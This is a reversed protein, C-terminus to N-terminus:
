GEGKQRRTVDRQGHQRVDERRAEITEARVGRAFETARRREMKMGEGFPGAFGDVLLRKYAQVAESHGALIERALEDSAELLREAPVVRNVLGWECAETATVFRGTYALESARYFGILRPLRQSLGWGPLVGVRVHSDAFAATESALIIDCALAMEFGATVAFGNVAAILPKPFGEIAPILGTDMDGGAEAVFTEGSWGGELPRLSAFDPAPSPEPTDM